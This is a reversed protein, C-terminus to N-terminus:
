KKKELVTYGYYSNVRFRRVSVFGRKTLLKCLERNVFGHGMVAIHKYNKQKHNIYECAHVMRKYFEGYSESSNSYGFRWVIRLFIGWVILPLPVRCDAFVPLDAENFLESIEPNQVGIHSYSDITRRLNSCIFFDTGRIEDLLQAPVHYSTDIGSINWDRIFQVVGQGKLLRYFRYYKHAVPMSHRILIVKEM